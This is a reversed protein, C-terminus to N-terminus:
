KKFSVVQNRGSEKAEYLSDDAAKLHKKYTDSNLQEPTINISAGISTTISLPKSSTDVPTQAIASRIIELQQEPDLAGSLLLVFEEGGWRSM